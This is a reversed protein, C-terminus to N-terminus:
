KKRLDKEWAGRLNTIYTNKYKKKFKQANKLFYTGDIILEEFAINQLDEAKWVSNNSLILYDVKIALDKINLKKDIWLIRKGHWVILRGFPLEEYQITNQLSDKQNIILFERELIGLDTWHNSINFEFNSKGLYLSSDAFLFTKRGEVLCLNSDNRIQYVFMKQQKNQEFINKQFSFTFVAISLFALLFYTFKRYSFFLILFGIMAYLLFCELLTINIDQMTSYPLSEVWFVATNMGKVLWDLVFGAIEEFYPIWYLMFLAIGAGLIGVALFGIALNSLWFYTPLQHFHLMVLPATAIQAAFAVTVAEWLHKSISNSPYFWYKWQQTFYVIGLVAIYSLQFGLNMLLYPDYALLLIASFSLSNYINTQNKNFTKIILIFSFMIVARLVSASLGTIMAYSWLILLSLCMFLWKGYKKKKLGGLIIGTMWFLIGVHLGSVALVHMAGAASYAERIPNELNDKVGLLIAIAIAYEDQNTINRRLIEKCFDRYEYAKALIWWAPENKIVQYDAFQLFDQYETHKFKLYRKYDFQAPNLPAAVTDPQGKILLVDGYKPFIIASDKKSFYVLINGNQAKWKGNVRIDKLKLEGRYSNKRESLQSNVVATYYEVKEGELLTFVKNEQITQHVRLIGFSCFILFALSGLTLGSNRKYKAYFVFYTLSSVVFFLYKYLLFGTEPLAFIALSIGTIFWLAYRL